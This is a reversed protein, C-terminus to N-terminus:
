NDLRLGPSISDGITGIELSVRLPTFWAAVLGIAVCNIGHAFRRVTTDAREGSCGSPHKALNRRIKQRKHVRPSM